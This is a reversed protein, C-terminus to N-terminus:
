NLTELYKTIEKIERIGYLIEQQPITDMNHSVQNRIYILNRLRNFYEGNIHGFNFLTYIDIHFNRRENPLIIGNDNNKKYILLYIINELERWLVMFEGHLQNFNGAISETLIEIDNDTIDIKDLNEIASILVIRLKNSLEVVDDYDSKSFSRNHAIRCRLMYLEDWSISLEQKSISVNESFYKDWNSYPMLLQIDELSIEQINKAKKLKQFLSEKHSPYNESFLFSKLQIFDVNHLYTLDRNESNISNKVDEPVREKIWDLGVNTLMFKTILKRMMNEIEFVLPYALQAYHLSVGDYLIQPTKNTIHLLTRISKLLKNYNEINELKECEFTLQFYNNSTNKVKGNKIFYDFILGKYTMKNENISIDGDSQLLNNFTRVDTCRISENDIFVLYEVKLM